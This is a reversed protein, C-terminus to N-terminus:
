IAKKLLIEETVEGAKFEATIKGEAMVLIRDSLALIEPIESSVLLISKGSEALKAILDYIESKANIDIGRTPEDLMLIEPFTDLWKALVVKQQNGGSLNVALQSESPTKISLENIYKKATEAEKGAQLLTGNKLTTLGINASLDMGLVLGESKRDETLFALGHNKAVQPSSIKVQEGNILTEGQLNRSNLGFISELLETRGAGMLGFIGLIEGKRLELNIDDLLNRNKITPHPLNLNEVKLSVEGAAKGQSKPPIQVERGVMLSILNAETTESMEGAGVTQGDRLVTYTDAIRFLEDMKHSIYVIAKGEAKLKAIIGHLRDIEKDTLASTPEDMLLVHTEILLAKAIEVLQQEGVKLSEVKTNPSINLNVQQLLEASRSEMEMDNLVGFTNKVENGLFINEAISLSPILNLEQHIIGVGALQAAKVSEFTVKEGDLLIDGEYDQYVGTLVKLLTSKGAGNEGLIANVKGAYFTFNVNQLAKVGPFSKSINKAELM